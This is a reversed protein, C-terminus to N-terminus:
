EGAAFEVRNLDHRIMKEYLTKRSIGLEEYTAKLNGQHRILTDVLAEREAAEMIQHLSPREAGDHTATDDSEDDIGMLFREAVNRLERVNGPWQRQALASLFQTSPRRYDTVNHRRATTALLHQFLAPVDELRDGLAPMEVTAVAFRYLLDQRFEGKAVMEELSTNTSTIIRADLEIQDYGGVREFTRTEVLRLLKTQLSRPLAGIEDLYLTGGRAHELRGYRARHAGPFADAEHGFLLHEINDQPLVALNIAVFPEGARASLDHLLRAALDKGTGTEGTILVDLDTPALARLRERTKTMVSSSGVMLRDLADGAGEIGARLERNELRLKRFQIARSVRERLAQNSFPKELFDFAGKQMADVALPVDGHGTILIVPLAEDIEQVAKLFQLGDMGPMRIDSVVIGSFDRSLRELAREAKAFALVHCGGLTLSEVTTDRVDQDDDIFIVDIKENM